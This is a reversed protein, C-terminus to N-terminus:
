PTFFFTCFPFLCSDYFPMLLVVSRPVASYEFLLVRMGMWANASGDSDRPRATPLPPLFRDCTDRSASQRSDDSRSSSSHPASSISLHFSFSPLSVPPTSSCCFGCVWGSTQVAMRTGRARRQSRHSSFVSDVVPIKLRPTKLPLMWM